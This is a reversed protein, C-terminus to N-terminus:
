RGKKTYGKKRLRENISGHRNSMEVVDRGYSSGVKKVSVYGKSKGSMGAASKTAKSGGFQHKEPCRVRALRFRTGDTFVGSDGDNWHDIRKRRKKAM